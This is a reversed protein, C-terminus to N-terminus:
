GLQCFNSAINREVAIFMSNYVSPLSIFEYEGLVVALTRKLQKDRQYRYM